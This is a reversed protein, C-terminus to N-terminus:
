ESRFAALGAVVYVPILSIIAVATMWIKEFASVDQDRFISRWERPSDLLEWGMAGVYAIPPAIGASQILSPIWYGVFLFSLTIIAIGDMILKGFPERDRASLYAGAAFLLLVVLLYVIVWWPM